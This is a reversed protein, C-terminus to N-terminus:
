QINWSIEGREYILKGDKMLANGWMEVCDMVPDDSTPEFPLWDGLPELQIEYKM